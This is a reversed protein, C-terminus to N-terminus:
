RCRGRRSHTSGCPPPLPPHAAALRRATPSGQGLLQIRKAVGSPACVASASTAAKTQWSSSPVRAPSTCRGSRRSGWKRCVRSGDISGTGIQPRQHVLAHVCTRTPPRPATREGSAPPQSPPPIGAHCAPAPGPQAEPTCAAHPAPLQHGGGLHLVERSERLADRPWVKHVAHPRLHPSAGPVRAPVLFPCLSPRHGPGEQASPPM